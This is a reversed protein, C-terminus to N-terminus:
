RETFRGIVTVSRRLKKEHMKRNLDRNGFAYPIPFGL